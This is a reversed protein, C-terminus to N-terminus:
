VAFLATSFLAATAGFAMSAVPGASTAPIVLSTLLGTVAGPGAGFAAGLLAKKCVIGAKDSQGEPAHYARVGNALGGAVAGALGRTAVAIGVTPKMLGVSLGQLAGAGLLLGLSLIEQKKPSWSSYAFSSQFTDSSTQTPAEAAKQAPAEAHARVATDLRRTTQINMNDGALKLLRADALVDYWRSFSLSQSNTFL